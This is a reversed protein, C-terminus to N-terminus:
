YAAADHGAWMAVDSVLSSPISAGITWAGAKFSPPEQLYDGAPAKPTM